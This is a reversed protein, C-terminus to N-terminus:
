IMHNFSKVMIMLVATISFANDRGEGTLSYNYSGAPRELLNCVKPGSPGYCENYTEANIMPGSEPLSM